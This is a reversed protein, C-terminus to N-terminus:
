LLQLRAVACSAQSLMSMFCLNCCFAHVHLCMCARGKLRNASEEAVHTVQAERPCSVFPNYQRKKDLLQSGIPKCPCVYVHGDVWLNFPEQGFVVLLGHRIGSECWLLSARTCLGQELLNRAQVHKRTRAESLSAHQM